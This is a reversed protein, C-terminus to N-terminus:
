HLRSMRMRGTRYQHRRCLEKQRREENKAAVCLEQYALAGSVAPAKILADSLGEQLQGHLLTNRTELIQELRRIFDSVSEKPSQVTDRFDQAALAKEETVVTHSSKQTTSLLNWEQLAKKRLYGALQLLKEDESWNNWHAAREFTPLWDEWLVEWLVDCNEGTFTDLPSAKGVRSTHSRGGMEGELRGPTMM